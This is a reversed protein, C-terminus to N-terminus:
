LGIFREMKKELYPFLINELKLLHENYTQCEEIFQTALKPEELINGQKIISKFDELHKILGRNEEMLYFLFTGRKPKEWRYQSLAKHFVNILKDVFSLLEKPTMGMKLQEYQILMIDQPTVNQIDDMYKNYLEKGNEKNYIGQCYNILNRIKQEM